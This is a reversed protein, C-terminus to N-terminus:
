RMDESLKIVLCDEIVAVCDEAPFCSMIVFDESETIRRANEEVVNAIGYPMTAGLVSKMFAYYSKTANLQPTQRMDDWAIDGIVYIPMGGMYDEHSEAMDMFKACMAYMKEYDLAAKFFGVNANVAWQFAGVTLCIVLTWNMVCAPIRLKKTRAFSQEPLSDAMLIAMLYLGVTSYTMLGYVHDPNFIQISCLFFPALALLAILVAMRGLKRGQRLFFVVLVLVVTVAAVVANLRSLLLQQGEYKEWEMQFAFDGFCKVVNAPIQRFTELSAAESVSQYSSIAIGSWKSFLQALLYYLALSLGICLVWKVARFWLNKASEESLVLLQVGRVFMMGIVLSACAQYTGTGFAILAVAPVFGWRFRELVVFGLVSLMAAMMYADSNHLFGLTASVTPHCMLVGGALIAMLSSRIELLEVLMAAILAVAFIVLLGNVAPMTLDTSLGSLWASSWRGVWVMNGNFWVNNLADGETFFLNTLRYLYALLGTCLSAFFALRVPKGIKRWILSAMQQAYM